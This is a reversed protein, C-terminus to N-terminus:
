PRWAEQYDPHDDNMAALARLDACGEYPVSWSRRDGCDHIDDHRALIRRKMAVERLIRRADDTLDGYAFDQAQEVTLDCGNLITDGHTVRFAGGDIPPGYGRAPEGCVPCPEGYIERVYVCSGPGREADDLRARVFAAMDEGVNMIGAGLWAPVHKAM